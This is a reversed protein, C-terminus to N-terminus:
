LVNLRAFEGFYNLAAKNYARAADEESDFRGLHIHKQNKIIQAQWKKGIKHWSVGKFRSSGRIKHQNWQNQSSTCVRLNSRRNDSRTRNIHDTQMGKPPQLIERHMYIRRQKGRVRPSQRVAYGNGYHWNWQSLWEFDDDDVLAFKGQTLKIKKM